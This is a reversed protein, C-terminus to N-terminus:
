QKSRNRAQQRAGAAWDAVPWPPSAPKTLDPLDFDCLICQDIHVTNSRFECRDNWDQNEKAIKACERILAESLDVVEDTLELGLEALINMFKKSTALDNM